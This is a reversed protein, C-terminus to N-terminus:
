EGAYIDNDPTGIVAAHFNEDSCKAKGALEDAAKRALENADKNKHAAVVAVWCQNGADLQTVVLMEGKPMDPGGDIKWRLITAFPKKNKLRWEVTEGIMNFPGFTQGYAVENKANKGYAVMLRLDGEGILVPIGQYGPCRSEAWGEDENLSVQECKADKTMVKTYASENAAMAPSVAFAALALSTMWRM